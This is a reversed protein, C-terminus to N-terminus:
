LKSSRVLTIVFQETEAIDLLPSYGKDDTVGETVSGDPKKVRFAQHSLPHKRDGERFLRAQRALPNQQFVPSVIKATDGKQYNLAPSKQEIRTPSFIEVGGSPHIRIGGGGCHLFLGNKASLQMEGNVSTLHMDQDSLAALKGRQAQLTINGGAAILKIGVRRVFASIGQGAALSLTKFINVSGSNGATVVVDQGASLQINEPTAQAIGADGWAVIGPKELGSLAQNMNQQTDTNVADAGASGASSQLTYAMSLAQELHRIIEAMDLQKGSAGPQASTTLLIGEAARLAAHKDTRLEAGEGRPKRSADVMHGINLQSKGYGTALKIHEHNKEDEMRLKNQGLTRIVNRTSNSDNVVDPNLADHLVHAIYPREPDGGEFAVAVETNDLLPFHIGFRDGAYIRALRVPMSERGKDWEDLDFSFKVRYRGDKDPRALRDNDSFGSVRAPVTGSIVPRPLREPRFASLESYPIGCLEAQFAHSRSASSKLSTVLLGPSFAEPHPGDIDAVVGPLLAPDNAVAELRIRECLHREHRIRAYFWSTEAQGGSISEWRDGEDQQIDAYHYDCGTIFPAERSIDAVSELPMFRQIRYNYDRTRVAAPIVSAHSIMKRITTRDGVMGSLPLATIKHGFVYSSQSDGFVMVTVSSVTEHQKFRFGIGVESLLRQIFALDTEGWQVIMERLPYSWSLGEMDIEYGEMGHSKLLNSVLEPVSMQQYIAYRRSHRLLTLPHELIAEYFTEDLSSSLRSLSTIVGFVERLTEWKSKEPQHRSWGATPRRMTLVAPKMMVVDPVIDKDASTFRIVYRYPQSLTEEGTFSAVDAYIGPQQFDLLYRNLTNVPDEAATGSHTM